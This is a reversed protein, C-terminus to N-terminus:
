SVYAPEGTVSSLAKTFVENFEDSTIQEGKAADEINFMGGSIIAIYNSGDLLTLKLTDTESNIRFYSGDQKAYFPTEIDIEVEEVKTVKKTIKM